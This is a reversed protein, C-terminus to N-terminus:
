RNARSPTREALRIRPFLSVFEIPEGFRPFLVMLPLGLRAFLPRSEGSKLFVTPQRFRIIFYSARAGNVGNVSM